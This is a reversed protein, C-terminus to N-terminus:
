VNESLKIIKGIGLTKVSKGLNKVTNELYTM